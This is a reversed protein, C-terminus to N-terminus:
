GIVGGKENRGAGVQDFAAADIRIQVADAVHRRLAGIGGDHAASRERRTLDVSGTQESRATAAITHSVGARTLLAIRAIGGGAIPAVVVTGRARGAPVSNTVAARISDAAIGIIDFLTVITVQGVVVAAM